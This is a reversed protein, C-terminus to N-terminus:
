PAGGHGRGRFAGWRGELAGVLQAAADPLADWRLPRRFRLMPWAMLDLLREPTGPGRMIQSSLTAMRASLPVETVATPEGVELVVWGAFPIVPPVPPLLLRGREGGRVTRIDEGDGLREATAPRLDLGRPGAYASGGDLVVLDDALIGFGSRHLWAMLTTKGAERDGLLGWARGGVLVGGGHIAARGHWLAMVAAAPTLFPHVLDDPTMPGRDHIIARGGVLDIDAWGDEIMLMVARGDTLDNAAPRGALDSTWCVELSPWDAGLPVALLGADDGPEAVGTIELGYAGLAADASPTREQGM